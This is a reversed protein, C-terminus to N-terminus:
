SLFSGSKPLRVEGERGEGRSGLGIGDREDRFKGGQVWEDELRLERVRVRRRASARARM